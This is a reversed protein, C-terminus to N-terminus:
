LRGLYPMTRRCPEDEGMPKLVHWTWAIAGLILAISVADHAKNGFHNGFACGLVPPLHCLMSYDTLGHGLARRFFLGAIAVFLSVAIWDYPTHM